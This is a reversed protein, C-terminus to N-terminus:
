DFIGAIHRIATIDSLYEEGGVHALRDHKTM